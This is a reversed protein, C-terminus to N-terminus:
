NEFVQHIFVIYHIKLKYSSSRGQTILVIRSIQYEEEPLYQISERFKRDIMHFSYEFEHHDFRVIRAGQLLSNNNHIDNRIRSKSQYVQTYILIPPRSFLFWAQKHIINYVVLSSSSTINGSWASAFNSLKLIVQLSSGCSSYKKGERKGTHTYCKM